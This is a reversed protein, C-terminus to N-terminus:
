CNLLEEWQRLWVVAAAGIATCRSLRPHFDRHLLRIEFKKVECHLTYDSLQLWYLCVLDVAELLKVDSGKWSPLLHSQFLWPLGLRRIWKVFHCQASCRYYCRLFCCNYTLILNILYLPRQCCLCNTEPLSYCCLLDAFTKLDKAEEAAGTMSGPFSDLLWRASHYIM